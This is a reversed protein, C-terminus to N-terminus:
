MIKTLTQLNIFMQFNFLKASQQVKEECMNLDHVNNECFQGLEDMVCPANYGMVMSIGTDHPLAYFMTTGEIKEFSGSTGNNSNLVNM